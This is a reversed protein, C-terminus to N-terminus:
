AVREPDAVQQEQHHAVDVFRRLLDPAAGEAAIRATYHAAIGEAPPLIGHRFVGGRDDDACMVVHELVGRNCGTVPLAHTAVLVACPFGPVVAVIWLSSRLARAIE